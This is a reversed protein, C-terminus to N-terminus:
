LNVFRDQDVGSATLGEKAKDHCEQADEKTEHQRQKILKSALKKGVKLTKQKPNKQVAIGETGM